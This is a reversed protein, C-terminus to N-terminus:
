CTIRFRATKMMGLLRAAKRKLKTLADVPNEEYPIWRVRGALSKLSDRIVCIELSRGAGTFQERVLNDHLSKADCIGAVRLESDNDDSM